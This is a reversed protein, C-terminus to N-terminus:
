VPAARWGRLCALAGRRAAKLGRILGGTTRAAPGVHTLPADLESYHVGVRGKHGEKGYISYELGLAAADVFRHPWAERLPQIALTYAIPGTVKLVGRQGVGHLAPNYGKLNALVRRIVARLFPHGAAAAIFWQQYEGGPARRLEPHLGWGEFPEGPGNPWQSLLYMDPGQIVEALPRSTFSKVDLYVGGCRYIVLYRFLDSRAALYRPDIADYYALIRPGYHREIFARADADDYFRHEWDANLGRVAEVNAALEVPVVATHFTQHLIRPICNSM